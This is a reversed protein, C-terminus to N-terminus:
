IPIQFCSIPGLTPYITIKTDSWPMFQSSKSAPFATLLNTNYNINYSSYAM